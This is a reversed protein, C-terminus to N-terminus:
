ALTVLNGEINVACINLNKDWYIQSKIEPIYNINDSAMLVATRLDLMNESVLGKIIDSVFSTCGAMTGKADVAKGNKLFVKKGCFDMSEKNSHAIPLADSILIIKSLPKTRFTIKLVDKQVHVMDAILETYIDDNVLASVVTSKDRHSFNGMANYLHTVQDVCSLDCGLCHGASVRVGKSKLYKCLLNDDDLEPALTVIKIVDDELLKYNEITPKILQNEDHIGKKLPNIFCAELHIGLIKAMPQSLNEQLQMAHKIEKIQVQLNELTDTALTPFFGCVGHKLIKKAFELFDDCSCNAFDIGFGGHIHQEILAKTEILNDVSQSQNDYM